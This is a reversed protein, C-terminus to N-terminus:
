GQRYDDCPCGTPCKLGCPCKEVNDAFERSCYGFCEFDAPACNFACSHYEDEFNKKSYPFDSTWNLTTISIRVIEECQVYDGNSYPDNCKCVGSSCLDCGQPCNPFCPCWNECGVFGSNCEYICSDSDCGDVCTQYTSLCIDICKNALPEDRCFSLVQNAQSKM